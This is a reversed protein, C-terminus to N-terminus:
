HMQSSLGLLLKRIPTPLAADIADELNLWVLGAENATQLKLVRIPQPTIHLKFHTFTHILVPLKNLPETDAGFRLKAVAQADESSDIEPLSWLGGWIGTSPRKELM